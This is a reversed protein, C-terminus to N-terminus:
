TKQMFYVSIPPIRTEDKWNAGDNPDALPKYIELLELNAKKMTTLYDEQTWYYDEIAFGKDMFEIKVKKGSELEKNQPFDTNLYGWKYKYLNENDLIAVFNGGPKLVRNIEILANEIEQLSSMELLVFTAFVLDFTGKDYPIESDTILSYNGNKDHEQANEIMKPNIDVGSTKFGLSKLFNTSYGNGCGFDLAKNATGYKKFLNPLDRFALTKLSNSSTESIYAKAYRDFETKNDIFTM